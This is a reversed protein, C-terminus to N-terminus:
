NKQHNLWNRANRMDQQIYQKLESLGSFKMEDRLKHLFAVKIRQGYLNGDYDFLHVELKPKLNDSVTANVGLSAVGDCQGFQGLVRVVFVGNLAYRHMPLHVNATPCALTRGIKAGHKVHGSLAYDHGLIERAMALNGAVLLQRIATSSARSGSVLISPTNETMFQPYSQLFEFDGGRQKGFRFDDGVLLYRTNLNGLLINQVFDHASQNAFHQNFRQIYINKLCGTAQLLQIKDRLPTLRYPAPQQKQQMFFESPQPEFVIATTSLGRMQAENKLKQLIHLHGQHVGDFNGITVASGQEIPPHQGFIINMIIHTSFSHAYKLSKEPQRFTKKDHVKLSGSIYYAKIKVRNRFSM